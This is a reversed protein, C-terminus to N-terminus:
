QTKRDIVVLRAGASHPPGNLQLFAASDEDAGYWVHGELEAVTKRGASSFSLVEFTSSPKNTSSHTLVLVSPASKAQGVALPLLGTLIVLRWFPKWISKHM